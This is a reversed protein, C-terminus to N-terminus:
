ADCASQATQSKTCTAHETLLEFNLLPFAHGIADKRAKERGTEPDFTSEGVCCSKGLVTFSNELVLVCFTILGLATADSGVPFVGSSQYAGDLATFYYESQIRAEIDSLSIRRQLTARPNNARNQM